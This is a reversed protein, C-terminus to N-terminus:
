PSSNKQTNASWILSNSVIYDRQQVCNSANMSMLFSYYKSISLWERFDLPVSFILSQTSYFLQKEVSSVCSFLLAIYSVLVFCSKSMCLIGDVAEIGGFIDGGFWCDICKRYVGLM